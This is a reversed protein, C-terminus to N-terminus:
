GEIAISAAPFELSAVMEINMHQDMRIRRLEEFAGHAVLFEHLQAIQFRMQANMRAFLWVLTTHTIFAKALQATQYCVFADVAVFFRELARCAISAEALEAAEIRVYRMAFLQQGFQLIPLCVM